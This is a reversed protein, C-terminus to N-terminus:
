DKVGWALSYLGLNRRVTNSSTRFHQDPSLVKGLSEKLTDLSSVFSLKSPIYVATFLKFRLKFDLTKSKSILCRRTIITIM